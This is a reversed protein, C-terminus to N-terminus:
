PILIADPFVIAEGQAVSSLRNEVGWLLNHGRFSFERRKSVSNHVKERKHKSEHKESLTRTSTSAM